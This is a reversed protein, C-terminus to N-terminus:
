DEYFLKELFSRRKPKNPEQLWAMFANTIAYYRYQYYIVGPISHSETETMEVAGFEDKSTWNYNITITGSLTNTKTFTYEAKGSYKGFSSSSSTYTKLEHALYETVDFLRKIDAPIADFMEEMYLCNLERTPLRQLEETVEISPHSSYPDHRKKVKSSEIIAQYFVNGIRIIYDDQAADVPENQM